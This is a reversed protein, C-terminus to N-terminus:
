YMHIMRVQIGTSKTYRPCMGPVQGCEVRVVVRRDKNKMQSETKGCLTKAVCVYMYRMWTWTHLVGGVEVCMIAGLVWVVTKGTCRGDVKQICTARQVIVGACNAVLSLPCCM